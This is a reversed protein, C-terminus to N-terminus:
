RRRSGERLPPQGRQDEVSDDRYSASGGHFNPTYNSKGQASEKPGGRLYSSQAVDNYRRDSPKNVPDQPMNKNYDGHGMDPHQTGYGYRKTATAEGWASENVVKGLGTGPIGTRYKEKM